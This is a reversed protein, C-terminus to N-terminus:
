RMVLHERHCEKNYMSRPMEVRKQESKHVPIVVVTGDREAWMDTELWRRVTLKSHREKEGVSWCFGRKAPSFIENKQTEFQCWFCVMLALADWGNTGHNYSM